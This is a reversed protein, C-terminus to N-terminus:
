IKISAGAQKLANIHIKKLPEPKINGEIMGSQMALQKYYHWGDEVCIVEVPALQGLNRALEYHFNLKLQDDVTAAAPAQAATGEFVALYYPKAQGETDIALLSVPKCDKIPKASNQLAALATSPDLKEGVLDVGFRRGKFTFCPLSGYFESVVLHDDMCYRLLGSGTTLIPSVEDGIQLQWSPVIKGTTLNEFEYFHSQYALPYHGNYPLTVVGETAWLGKGEFRAFPLRDQLQQAWAKAGATDWCSVLCLNPWLAQWDMFPKSLLSHLTNARAPAKPAKIQSLSSARLGWHGLTLVAAIEDGWLHVNDLLQIAFTPSWVSLMSLNADAILYCLTAFLADDASGAFAVDSPVAQTYQSLLRKGWDLLVSDDNLNKDTLLHRQSEPLWSISWYHSGKKLRPHARYMSSLWPGIAGDLEDLFAQYYPIFKISESSGSTPQYRVLKSRSLADNGQRTNEIREKWHSYRTVPLTAAFKEYSDIAGQRGRQDVPFNIQKLIKALKQRQVRELQHRQKEFRQDAKRCVLALAEHSLQALLNM